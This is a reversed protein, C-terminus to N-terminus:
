ARPSVNKIVRSSIIEGDDSVSEPIDELAALYFATDFRHTKEGESVPTLWNSWENLSWVCPLIKFTQCMELFKAPNEHVAKRWGPLENEPIVDKCVYGLNTGVEHTDKIKIDSFQQALLVGSEEFTERIASIRFAFDSPLGSFQPDRKRYFMPSRPEGTREFISKIKQYNKGSSRFLDHWDASFDHDDAVGGPFVFASPTFESQSSRELLLVKSPNQDVHNDESSAGRRPREFRKKGPPIFTPLVIDSCRAVLILTSAERWSRLIATM